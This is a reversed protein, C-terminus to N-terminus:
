LREYWKSVTEEQVNACEGTMQKISDLWGNSAKFKTSVRLLRCLKKYFYDLFQRALCYWKYVADNVEVFDTTHRRERDKSGVMPRM